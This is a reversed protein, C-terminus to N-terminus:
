GNWGQECVNQIKVDRCITDFGEMLGNMLGDMWGDMRADIWWGNM